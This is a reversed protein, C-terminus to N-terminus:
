GLNSCMNLYPLWFKPQLGRTYKSTTPIVGSKGKWGGLGRSWPSISSEWTSKSTAPCAPPRLICSWNVMRQIIYFWSMGFSFAVPKGDCLSHFGLGKYKCLMGATVLKSESKFEEKQTGARHAGSVRTERGSRSCLSAVYSCPLLNICPRGGAFPPQKGDLRCTQEEPAGERSM